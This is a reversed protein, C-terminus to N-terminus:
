NEETSFVDIEGFFTHRSRHSDPMPTPYVQFLLYRYRGLEPQNSYIACVQQAPRDPDEEVNFFSDTDVRAIRTWGEVASDKSPLTDPRREGCGWLTYRQVARRRLEPFDDNLHWSYTHIRSLPLAEGLDLLIYGESADTFYLSEGPADEYSQGTGDILRTAQGSKRHPGIEEGENGLLTVHCRAQALDAVDTPNPPPISPFTFASTGDGPEIRVVVPTSGTEISIGSGQELRELPFGPVEADVAGSAVHMQSFGDRNATTLFETGQDVFKGLRTRITFGMSSRTDAKSYAQGHYLFGENASVVQFRTPGQLRTVAGSRFEIEASGSTLELNMGPYLVQGETYSGSAWVASTAQVLKAQSQDATTLLALAGGVLISAAVGAALAWSFHRPERPKPAIYPPEEPQAEGANERLLTDMRVAKLYADRKAQDTRLAEKFSAYEADTIEGHLYRDVLDEWDTPTEASM